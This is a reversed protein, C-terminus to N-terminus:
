TDDRGGIEYVSVPKKPRHFRWRPAYLSHIMRIPGPRNEFYDAATLPEFCHDDPPLGREMRVRDRELEAQVRYQERRREIELQPTAQNSRNAKAM